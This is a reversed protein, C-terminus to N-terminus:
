LRVKCPEVSDLFPSMEIGCSICITLDDLLGVAQITQLLSSKLAGFMFSSYSKKTEQILM